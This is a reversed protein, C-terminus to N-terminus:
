HYMNFRENPSHFVPRMENGQQTTFRLIFNHFYKSHKDIKHCHVLSYSCQLRLSFAILSSSSILGGQVSSCVVCPNHIITADFNYYIFPAFACIRISDKTNAGFLEVIDFCCLIKPCLPHTQTTRFIDLAQLYIFLYNSGSRSSYSAFHRITSIRVVYKSVEQNKKKIKRRCAFM